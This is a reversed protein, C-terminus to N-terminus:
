QAIGGNDSIWIREDSIAHFGPKKVASIIV